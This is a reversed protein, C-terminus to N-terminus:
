VHARGIERLMGRGDRGVGNTIEEFRQQTLPKSNSGGTDINMVYTIAPNVNLKVWSRDVTAHDTMGLIDYGLEYHREVMASFDEGGDSITSHTHLNSKYQGTTSWNVAAYPSVITYDIDAALASFPVFSILMVTVLVVATLKKFVNSKM